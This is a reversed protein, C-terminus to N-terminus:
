EVKYATITGDMMMPIVALRNAEIFELDASGQKLDLLLEAKGSAAVRLLGGSMWDTVLYAPGDPELGDLNGVPTGDGLSAIEKSSLSVSKMHGPTKTSFGETMVGWAAVLLRDGQVMLGNPSELAKDKLWLTLKNNELRYIADDMFDSVYVRGASDVATDNLFKSDPADYSGVIKGKDIDIALLRDIDSVYLRNGDIVMGKPGNMGGIWKLVAVTGDPKLQSLFGNGDKDTMGGNVNSVYIMDRRADFVVSEPAMFGSAEWVKVPEANAPGGALAWAASALLGVFFVKSRNVTM